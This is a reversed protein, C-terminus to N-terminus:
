WEWRDGDVGKKWDKLEPSVESYGEDECHIDCWLSADLKSYLDWYDEGEKRLTFYYDRDVGLRGAHGLEISIGDKPYIKSLLYRLQANLGRKYKNEYGLVDRIVGETITIYYGKHGLRGTSAERHLLKDLAQEVKM